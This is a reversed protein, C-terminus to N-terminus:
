GKGSFTKFAEKTITVTEVSDLCSSVLDEIDLLAEAAIVAELSPRTEPYEPVFVTCCDEYPRISIPYTHLRRALTVIEEKDFGILPRFVPRVTVQEIVNMSELTQSAVQGLNEGTVLALAGRRKALREAVRFMLRRMLTVTLKEPTKERLEQQIRTFHAVHLRLPGGWDALIRCLDIVKEKARESTFPFSHFHLAELTVGRKMTMWGAVPSDIGGSVLLLAKGTVGVPLGGPGSIKETFIYAEKERIEIELLQEPQRVDVVLGPFNQLLYAGVHSSVEPSTLPFRKDARKTEVKFRLLPRAVRRFESLAVEQIADLSWGAVAVPSISVIGFVKSLKELCVATDHVHVRVFNRGHRQQVRAGEIDRLAQRINATLMNTFFHRNKGKLAIEGHRVLLLQHM